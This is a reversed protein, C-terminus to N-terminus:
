EIINLEQDVKYPKQEFAANMLAFRDKLEMNTYRHVAASGEKHLGAAYLNIQVKNMIDVHTKRALKSSGVKYLPLYDNQKSEENYIPVERTIKCVQLLDKIKQSFGMEGYLNKLVPFDFNTRQIIDFAYRIIPTELERNDTQADATKKPIYHVYPIGEPSVSISHISMQKFDSIRCGFACQVLFADKTEKLIPPVDTNIITQLENSRLFVPDDYKTKMVVKKREKGLRRFPSKVIEDSNELETFFTQLMKMQSAVTNLSLRAKPKNYSNVKKYLRKYKEVYKYEDFLFNRFEMLLADTFEPASLESLGKITLFRDLKDAVVLIHDHRKKGLIRDRLADDAYQRFRDVVAPQDKRVELVPTKLGAIVSEFTESNMDMGDNKMKDYALQMYKREESISQLFAKTLTTVGKKKKGEITLKDLDSIKAEIDSKHYLEIDRGERLRFRLKVTGTEKTTRVKLTITEM